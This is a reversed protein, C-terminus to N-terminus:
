YYNNGCKTVKRFPDKIPAKIHPCTLSRHPRRLAIRLLMMKVENKPNKDAKEGSHIKKMIVLPKVPSPTAPACTLQQLVIESLNV